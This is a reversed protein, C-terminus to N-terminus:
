EIWAYSRKFKIDGVVAESTDHKAAIAKRTLGAALDVRIARVTEPTLRATSRGKQAMDILNDQQTGLFLHRPNCCSRHDCTHMVVLGAPIQGKTLKYAIQHAYLFAGSVVGYGGTTAGKWYWCEDPGAKRVGTWFNRVGSVPKYKKTVRRSLRPM